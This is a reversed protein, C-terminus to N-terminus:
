AYNVQVHFHLERDQCLTCPNIMSRDRMLDVDNVSLQMNKFATFFDTPKNQFHSVIKETVMLPGFGFEQYVTIWFKLDGSKSLFHNELIRIGYMIRTRNDPHPQLVLALKRKFPHDLGMRHTTELLVPMSHEGRFLFEHSHVHYIDAIHVVIDWGKTWPVTSMARRLHRHNYFSTPDFFNFKNSCGNIPCNSLYHGCHFDHEQIESVTFKGGCGVHICEYNNLNALDTMIQMTVRNDLPAVHESRCMPCITPFPLQQMCIYCIHHHNNCEFIPNYLRPITMCVTCQLHETISEVTKLVNAPDPPYNYPNYDEEEQINRAM